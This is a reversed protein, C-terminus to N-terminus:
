KFIGNEDEKRKIPVRNSDDFIQEYDIGNEGESYIEEKEDINKIIDKFYMFYKRIEDLSYYSYMVWGGRIIRLRKLINITMIDIRTKKHHCKHCVLNVNSLDFLHGGVFVPMIHELDLQSIREFEKDCIYCKKGYLKSLEKKIAAPTKGKESFKNRSTCYEYLKIMEDVM